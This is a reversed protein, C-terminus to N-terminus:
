KLYLSDILSIKQIAIIEKRLLQLAQLATKRINGERTEGMQFRLAFTKEPTSVGIWVTGVPKTKTGGGPGAIGTSSIGFDCDYLKRVGAAMQIAVQESVAGQEIIDAKNVGLVKSKADYSYTVATGMFYASSGPVSTVLHSIYGGTCSEAIGLTYGFKTLLRGVVVELTEKGFGFTYDQILPLLREINREVVLTNDEIHDDYKTLRLRVAGPSPLYALKINEKALNEEWDAIIEMLSSEGIGQTLITRHVIHDLKFKEKIKPIARESFIHKMEFPVGPMSVYVAGGKDFWMGPATGLGNPLAICNSPVQAQLRNVEPMKVGRMLFHEKVRRLVDEDERWDSEFWEVFAYKTIDDKTPGLGGTFLVLEVDSPVTNLAEFIAERTDAISKVSDVSIGLTNLESALWASNTDVIQGILIEDGITVIQAKMALSVILKIYTQHDIKEVHVL